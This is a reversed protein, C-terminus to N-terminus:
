RSVLLRRLNSTGWAHDADGQVRVRYVGDSPVRVRVSYASFGPRSPGADRLSTRAVTVWRGTSTRKQVYVRQGDHAPAVTSSFFRVIEGARPTPDSVRRGVLIRVRVLVESSVADRWRVRYRVNQQPRVSFRYNGKSDTTATSVPRWQMGTFPFPLEELEIRQNAVQNGKISGRVTTFSNFVVPEPNVAITPNGSQPASQHGPRHSATAVAAGALCTVLVLTLPTLRVPRGKEPYWVCRAYGPGPTRV